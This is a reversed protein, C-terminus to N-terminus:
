RARASARSCRRACRTRTRATRWRGRRPHAACVQEFALERARLPRLTLPERPPRAPATNSLQKLLVRDTNLRRPRVNQQVILVNGAVGSSVYIRRRTADWLVGDNGRGIPLKTVLAGTDASLVMLLPTGPDACGVFLRRQVPDIDLGTPDYCGLAGLDFVAQQALSMVDQVARAPAM